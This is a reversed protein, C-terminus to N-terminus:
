PPTQPFSLLVLSTWGGFVTSVTMPSWFRRRLRAAHNPTAVRSVFCFTVAGTSGRAFRWVIFGNQVVARLAHFAHPFDAPPFLSFLFLAFGAFRFFFLHAELFSCPVASPHHPWGFFFSVFVFDFHSRRTVSQGPSFPRCFSFLVSLRFGFHDRVPTSPDRHLRLCSLLVLFGLFPHMM